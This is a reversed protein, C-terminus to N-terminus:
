AALNLLDKKLHSRIVAVSVPPLHSIGSVTGGGPNLEPNRFAAPTLPFNRRYYERIRERLQAYRRTRGFHNIWQHEDPPVLQSTMQGGLWDTEETLIVQRGADTAALAAAVGGLGGGVILIETKM